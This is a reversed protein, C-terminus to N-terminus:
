RSLTVSLALNRVFLYESLSKYSLKDRRFNNNRIYCICSMVLNLKKVKRFAFSLKSFLFDIFNLAKM